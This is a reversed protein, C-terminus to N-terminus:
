SAPFTLVSFFFSSGFSFIFLIFEHLLIRSLFDDFFIIQSHCREIRALWLQNLEDAQRPLTQVLIVVGDKCAIASQLVTSQDLQRSCSPEIRRQQSFLRSSHSGKVMQVPSCFLSVHNFFCAASVLLFGSPSRSRLELEM